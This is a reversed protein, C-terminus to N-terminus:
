ISLRRIQTGLYSMPSFDTAPPLDRIFDRENAAIQEAYGRVSMSYDAISTYPHGDYYQTRSSYISCPEGSYWTSSVVQIVVGPDKKMAEEVAPCSDASWMSTGYWEGKAGDLYEQIKAAVTRVQLECDTLFKDKLEDMPLDLGTWSPLNFPMVQAFGLAESHPNVADCSINSEQTAIALMMVRVESPYDSLYQIWDNRELYVLCNDFEDGKCVDEGQSESPAKVPETGPAPLVIEPSIAGDPTDILAPAAQGQTIVRAAARRASFDLFGLFLATTASAALALRYIPKM